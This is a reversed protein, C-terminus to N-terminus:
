VIIVIQIEEGCRCKGMSREKGMKAFSQRDMRQLGTVTDSLNKSVYEGSEM